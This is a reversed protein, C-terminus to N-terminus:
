LGKHCDRRPPYRQVQLPPDLIRDVVLDLSLWPLASPIPLPWSATTSIAQMWISGTTPSFSAFTRRLREAHDLLRGAVAGAQDDQRLQAVRAVHELAALLREREGLRDRVPRGALAQISIAARRPRCMTAPILSRSPRRARCCSRDHDARVAVDAGEALHVQPVLLIEVELGAVHAKGHELRREAPDAGEDAVVAPEGLAIRRQARCPASMTQTGVLQTGIGPWSGFGRPSPWCGTCPPRACGVRHEDGGGVPDATSRPWGNM